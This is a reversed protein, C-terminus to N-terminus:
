SKTKIAIINSMTPSYSLQFLAQNAILLDPTRSGEAGGSKLPRSSLKKVKLGGFNGLIRPFLFWNFLSQGVPTGATKHRESRYRSVLVFSTAPVYAGLGRLEVLKRRGIKINDPELQCAM